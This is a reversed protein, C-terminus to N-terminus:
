RKPGKALKQCMGHEGFKLNGFKLNGFKFKDFNLNIWTKHSPKQINKTPKPDLNSANPNMYNDPFRYRQWAICNSWQASWRRQRFSSQLLRHFWQLDEDYPHLPLLFSGLPVSFSSHCLCLNFHCQFLHSHCVSFDFHGLFLRHPVFSSWLSLHCLFFM